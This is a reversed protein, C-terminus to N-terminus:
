EFQTFDPKRKDKFAQVAEKMEPTSFSARLLENEMEERAAIEEPAALVLQKVIRISQASKAALNLAIDNVHKALVDAPVIATIFGNALAAEAKMPEGLLLMEMARKTGIARPLLLSSGFEPVIALNVFPMLFYASPAAYVLDCHLLITAGVGIGPGNVAALLPKRITTLVKMVQFVSAEPKDPPNQLFDNLDNGACFFEGEGTLVIARVAKDREGTALKEALASYMEGTVANRKDPRNFRITLVGNAIESAIHATM